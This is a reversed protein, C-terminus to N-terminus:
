QFTNNSLDNKKAFFKCATILLLSLLLFFATLLVTNLLVKNIGLKNIDIFPYPYFGSFAGRIFAFVAYVFPYILWPFANKYQLHDKKVFILWYLLFLIPIILHLLEDVVRQMGQPDWISRLIVNYVIGVVVIYITVATLTQEKQFFKGFSSNPKLVLITSCVTVLLNTLITFYSFFRILLEAKPAIGSNIQLYFQVILAFWGIIAIISM